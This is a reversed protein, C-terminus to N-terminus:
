SPGKLRAVAMRDIGALDKVIEEVSLGNEELLETLTATQEDGAYEVLFYGGERLAGSLRPILRRLFDLGDGGGDVAERPEFRTIAPVLKAWDASAVYPPNCTVVDFKKETSGVFDVADACVWEAREGVGARAGNETATRVADESLDAGVGSAGPLELLLSVLIAGTGTCLDLLSPGEVGAALALAKEMVLETEPRPIFLPAPTLFEFKWFEKRGTIHAVAEGEARQKVMSKYRALEDAALPKDHDLYLQVRGVDLTHALLLEADLRPSQSGQERLYGATWVIVEMTTWRKRAM